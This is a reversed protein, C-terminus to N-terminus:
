HHPHAAEYLNKAKRVVEVAACMDELQNHPLIVVVDADFSETAEEAVVGTIEAEMNEERKAEDYGRATLRDFHPATDARLVVVQHLWRKPFLECGHYDLVNNGEVLLPELYDLLREEDEEEISYSNYEDDFESYFQEQKIIKGVELHRLGLEQAIMQSLSSKGTGPTGTILVNFGRPLPLSM